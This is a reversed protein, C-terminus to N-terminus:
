SEDGNVICKVLDMSKVSTEDVLNVLISIIYPVIVLLLIAIIRRTFLVKAKSIKSEDGAVVAKAFDFIGLALVLIPAGIRIVLWLVRFVVIDDCTLKEEGPEIGLRPLKAVRSTNVAQFIQSLQGMSSYYNNQTHEATQAQRDILDSWGPYINEMCSDFFVYEFDDGTACSFNFEQNDLLSKGTHSAGLCDPTSCSNETCYDKVINVRDKCIKVKDECNNRNEITTENVCANTHNRQYEYNEISTNRILETKDLAQIIQGSTNEEFKEKSTFSDSQLAIMLKTYKLIIDIDVNNDKIARDYAKGLEIIKNEDNAEIAEELKEKEDYGALIYNTGYNKKYNQKIVGNSAFVGEEMMGSVFNQFAYYLHAYTITYKWCSDSVDGQSSDNDSATGSVRNLSHKLITSFKSADEQYESCNSNIKKLTKEYSQYYKKVYYDVYEKAPNKGDYQFSCGSAKKGINEELYCYKNDDDIYYSLPVYYKEESSANYARTWGPVTKKNLFTSYPKFTMDADAGTEYERTTEVAYYNGLYEKFVNDDYAGYFLLYNPRNWSDCGGVRACQGSSPHISIYKPCREKSIDKFSIALIYEKGKGGNYIHALSHYEANNYVNEGDVAWVEEGTKTYIDGHLLFGYINEKKSMKTGLGGNNYEFSVNKYLKEPMDFAIYVDNYNPAVSTFENVNGYYASYPLKYICRKPTASVISINFFLTTFLFLLLVIKKRNKIKM